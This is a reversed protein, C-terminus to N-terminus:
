HGFRDECAVGDGDGDVKMDPCHTLYYQAEEKSNMQSCHHKGQCSFDAEPSVPDTTTGHADVEGRPASNSPDGLLTRPAESPRSPASCSKAMWSIGIVPVLLALMFTKMRQRVGRLGSHRRAPASWGDRHAPRTPPQRRTPRDARRPPENSANPSETIRAFTAKRKGQEGISSDFYVRDGEVPRRAISGFTKIHVFVQTNELDPQIFGYGRQDNWRILTGHEFSM